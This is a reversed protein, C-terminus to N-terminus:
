KFLLSMLSCKLCDLDNSSMDCNADDCKTNLVDAKRKLQDRCENRVTRTRGSGHKRKTTGTKRLRALLQVIRFKGYKKWSVYTETTQIGKTLYLNKILAKDEERFVM